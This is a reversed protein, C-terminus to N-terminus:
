AHSPESILARSLEPAFIGPRWLQDTVPAGYGHLDRNYLHAGDAILERMVVGEDWRVANADTTQLVVRLTFADAGHARIADYLPGVAYRPNRAGRIHQGFRREPEFGTSGVYSAGPGDIVYVSYIRRGGLREDRVATTGEVCPTRAAAM